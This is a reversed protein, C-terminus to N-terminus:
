QIFVMKKTLTGDDAKLVCIYVGSGVRRRSDDRGDWEISYSGPAKEGIFLTRIKQGTIGFITLSVQSRRAISFRINTAPNFPNPYNQMLGFETAPENFNRVATTLSDVPVTNGYLDVCNLAKITIDPIRDSFQVLALTGAGNVGKNAGYSYAGFIVEKQLDAYLPGLAVSTNGSGTLLNGSQVSMVTMPIAASLHLDFGGLERAGEVRLELLDTKSRVLSLRISPSSSPAGPVRILNQTPVPRNWWSAVSQVDTADVDGDGLGGIDIDYKASYKAEGKKSKWHAAEQQIDALNLSNNEDIDAWFRGTVQLTCNELLVPIRQGGSDSLKVDALQIASTGRALARCAIKAVM